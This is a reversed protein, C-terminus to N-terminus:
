VSGGHSQYFSIAEEYTPTGERAGVKTCKLASVASAFCACTYTDMGRVLGALYAGHFVDGAGNTDVAKVPYSPYRVARSDQWLIGGSKGQTIILIAPHYREQLVKLAAEANDCDTIKFAFEESPILIDVLPLLREIGPYTGGADLSVKVGFERAKKAAYIAAELQHGDLHLIKAQKLIELNIERKSLAPLTGLNWVCTRTAAATNILVFSNASICGKKEIIEATGVGYEEFEKMILRGYMDDGVVGMYAANTGLKSVAVLATACPGGGQLKTMSSKLKTDEKPFGETLMLTDFLVSGIGIVEYM